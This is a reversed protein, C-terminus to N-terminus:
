FFCIAVAHLKSRASVQALATRAQALASCHQRLLSGPPPPFPPAEAVEGDGAVPGKHVAYFVVLESYADM